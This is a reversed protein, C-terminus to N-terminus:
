TDADGAEEALEALVEVDDIRSEVGRVKRVRAQRHSLGSTVVQAAAPDDWLDPAAAQEELEAIERDLKPLDTVEAIDAYTARLSRIRASFDQELM